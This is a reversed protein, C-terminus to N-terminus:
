VDLRVGVSMHLHVRVLTVTDLADPVPHPGVAGRQPRGPGAPRRPGVDGFIRKAYHPKRALLESVAAKVKEPDLAGDDDAPRELCRRGAPRQPWAAM